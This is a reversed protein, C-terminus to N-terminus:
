LLTLDVRNGKSINDTETIVRLNWPVHLGCSDEGKLPFIHDVHHMVGTENTIRKSEKYMNKLEILDDDTLWNPMAMMITARRNTSHFNCLDSNKKTWEKQWKKIRDKNKIRYDKKWNPNNAYFNDSKSKFYEKNNTYYNKMDSLSKDRNDNYYLKKKEAITDFNNHYYEKKQSLITDRSKNYYKQNKQKIREKRDNESLEIKVREMPERDKNNHYYTRKYERHCELCRRGSKQTFNEILKSVNCDKCNKHTRM